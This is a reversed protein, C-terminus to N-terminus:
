NAAEPPAPNLAIWALLDDTVDAANSAFALNGATTPTWIMEYGQQEGFAQLRKDLQRIVPQMRKRTLGEDLQKVQENLENLRQRAKLLQLDLVM